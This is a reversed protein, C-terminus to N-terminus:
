KKMIMAGDLRETKEISGMSDYNGTTASVHKFHERLVTNLLQWAHADGFGEVLLVLQM